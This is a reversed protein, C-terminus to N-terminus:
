SFVVSRLKLRESAREGFPRLSFSDGTCDVGTFVVATADTSNRPSDAPPAYGNGTEPLTICERSQPNDLVGVHSGGSWDHFVYSFQGQAAEASTPLTLVLAAAAVAAAVTSRLRM